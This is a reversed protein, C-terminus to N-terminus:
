FFNVNFWGKKGDATLAKEKREDPVKLQVDGSDMRPFARSFIENSLRVLNEKSRWSDKNLILIVTESKSIVTELQHHYNGLVMDNLDLFVKKGCKCLINRIMLAYLKGGCARRYSIFYDYTFTNNAM